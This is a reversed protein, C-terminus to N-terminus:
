GLVGFRESFSAIAEPSDANVALFQYHLSQEERTGKGFPFFWEFANYPTFPPEPIIRNGKLRIKSHFWTATHLLPGLM